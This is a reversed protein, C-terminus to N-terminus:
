EKRKILCAGLAILAPILTVCVSIKCGFPETIKNKETDELSNAVFDTTEPVISEPFVTEDGSTELAETEAFSTEPVSTEPVSTEPVTTEPVSTEPLTTEDSGDSIRVKVARKEDNPSAAVYYVIVDGIIEMDYINEDSLTTSFTMKNKGNTDISVLKTPTNFYLRGDYVGFGSFCGKWYNGDKGLVYWKDKITYISTSSFDSINYRCIAAKERDISYWKGDVRCFPYRQLRLADFAYASGKANVSPTWSAHGGGNVNLAALESDNILFYNHNVVGRADTVPDDWTLDVHYWKGGLMVMNWCHKEPINLAIFSEINCYRMVELFLLSYAECVGKGSKLMGYSTDIVYDSDYSYLSIMTDHAALVCEFDTFTEDIGCKAIFNELLANYEARKAPIQSATYRYELLVRTVRSASDAYYQWTEALYFLEPRTYLVERMAESLEAPSLRYTTLDVESRCKDVATAIDDAARSVNANEASASLSLALCLSVIATIFIVVRLVSKFKMIVGIFFKNEASAAPM